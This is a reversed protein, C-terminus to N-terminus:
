LIVRFQIPHVDPFSKGGKQREEFEMALVVEGRGNTPSDIYWSKDRSQAGVDMWCRLGTRVSFSPGLTNDWSRPAGDGLGITGPM